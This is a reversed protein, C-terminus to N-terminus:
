QRGFLGNAASMPSAPANSHNNIITIAQPAAAQAAAPAVVVVPVEHQPVSQRRADAVAGLLWGAGAGWAAGRWADRRFLSSNNGIVAGLLGGLVLGRGAYGPAAYGDYSYPYRPAYGGGWGPGLHRFGPHAVRPGYGSRHWPDFRWSAGHPYGHGRYPHRDRSWHGAYAWEAERNWHGASLYGQPYLARDRVAQRHNGVMEGLILGAGAGIAAGKWANHRLDGSNHGILAGALGGWLAGNVAEPRLIQANATGAFLLVLPLLARTNM